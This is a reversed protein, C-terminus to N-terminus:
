RERGSVCPNQNRVTGFGPHAEVPVDWPLGVASNHNSPQSHRPHESLKADIALQPETITM